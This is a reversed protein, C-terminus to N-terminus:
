HRYCVKALAIAAQTHRGDCYLLQVEQLHAVLHAVESAQLLPGPTHICTRTNSAQLWIGADTMLVYSYDFQYPCVCETSLAYYDHVPTHRVQDVIIYTFPSSGEHSIICNSTDIGDAQQTATVRLCINLKVLEKRTRDYGLGLSSPRETPIM